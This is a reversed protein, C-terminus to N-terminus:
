VTAVVNFIRHHAGHLLASLTLPVNGHHAPLAPCSLSSCHSTTCASAWSTRCWCHLLRHSSYLLPLLPPLVFLLQGSPPRATGCAGHQQVRSCDSRSRSRKLHGVFAIYPQVAAIRFCGADALHDSDYQHRSVNVIIALQDAYPNSHFRAEDAMELTVYRSCTDSDGIKVLSVKVGNRAWDGAYM